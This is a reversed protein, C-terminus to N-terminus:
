FATRGEEVYSYSPEISLVGNDFSAKTMKDDYNKWLDNTSGTWPPISSGYVADKEQKKKCCNCCACCVLIM